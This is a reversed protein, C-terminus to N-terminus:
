QDDPFGRTHSISGIRVGKSMRVTAPTKSNVRSAPNCGFSFVEHSHFICIQGTAISVVPAKPDLVREKTLDRPLSEISM